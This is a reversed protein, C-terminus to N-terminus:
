TEDTGEDKRWDRTLEFWFVTPGLTGFHAYRTTVFDAIEPPPVNWLERCRRQVWCDVAYGAPKGYLRAIYGVSVPGMGTIGTLCALFADAPLTRWADACFLHPHRLAARALHHLYKARFGCGTERRLTAEEIALLRQPTPFARLTGVPAGYQAVLAEAMHMTRRFTTNMALMIKACDEFLSPSRLFRGYHGDALWHWEAAPQASAYLVGTDIELSLCTEAVARGTEVAGHLLQGVVTEGRALIRLCGSGAPLDYPALMEDRTESVQLPALKYWGHSLLISPLERASLPLTIETM